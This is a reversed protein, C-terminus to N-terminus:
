SRARQLRLIKLEDLAALVRLRKEHGIKISRPMDPRGAMLEFGRTYMQTNDAEVQLIEIATNLNELFDIKAPNLNTTM